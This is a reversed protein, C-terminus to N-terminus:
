ETATLIDIGCKESAKSAESLVLDLEPETTSRTTEDTLTISVSKEHDQFVATVECNRILEVAEEWTINDETTNKSDQDDVGNKIDSLPDTSEIAQRSQQIVWAGGVFLLLLFAIMGILILVLKMVASM